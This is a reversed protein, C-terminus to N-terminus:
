NNNVDVAEMHWLDLIGAFLFMAAFQLWQLPRPVTALSEDSRLLAHGHLILPVYALPSTCHIDLSSYGTPANV